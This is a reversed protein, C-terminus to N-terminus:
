EALIKEYVEITEQATKDWSFKEVQALGLKIVKCRLDQDLTLGEMGQVIQDISRPDVLVAAEGAVEPISSVNSTLVPCGCAMAELIQIAFGEYLSPMCYLSALNYLGVLDEDPVFGLVKVKGKIKLKEILNHILIIEPLNKNEFSKGVLVLQCNQGNFKSFAELLRPLNKNYNVDGVYLLFKSQLNYKQIIATLPKSPQDIKRFLQDAALYVVKIRDEPVKLYKIIDKKSSKSDTLIASVNKLSYRQIFFRIKGKLGSPYNKPFVLPTCDHITVVTKAKKYLPLTLFYFDFYPYHIIDAKPKLDKNSIELVELKKTKKLANILGVSYRGIGRFKSAGLSPSTDIAVKIM